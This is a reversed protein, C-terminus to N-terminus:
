EALKLVSQLQSLTRPLTGRWGTKGYSRPVDEVDSGWVPQREIGVVLVAVLELADDRLVPRHDDHEIRVAFACRESALSSRRTTSRM